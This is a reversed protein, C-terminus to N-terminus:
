RRAAAGERRRESREGHWSWVGRRIPHLRGSFPFPPPSCPFLPLSCPFLPLSRPFSAAIAPFNRRAGAAMVMSLERDSRDHRRYYAPPKTGYLIGEIWHANALQFFELTGRSATPPGNGSVPILFM